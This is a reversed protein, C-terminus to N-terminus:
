LHGALQEFLPGARSEALRAAPNPSRPGPQGAARPIGRRVSSAALRGPPSAALGRRLRRATRALLWLGSLM